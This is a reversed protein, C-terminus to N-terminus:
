FSKKQSQMGVVVIYVEFKLGAMEAAAGKKRKAAGIAGWGSLAASPTLTAALPGGLAGVWGLSGGPGGTPVGPGGAPGVGPGLRAWGM